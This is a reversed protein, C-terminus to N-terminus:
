NFYTPGDNGSRFRSTNKKQTVFALSSSSSFFSCTLPMCSQTGYHVLCFAQLHYSCPTPPPSQSSPL